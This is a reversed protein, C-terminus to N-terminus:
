TALPVNRRRLLAVLLAILGAVALGAGFALVLAALRIEDRLGRVFGTAAERSLDTIRRDLCDGDDATCGPLLRVLAGDTASAAVNHVTASLSVALPGYGQTGLDGLIGDSLSNHLALATNEALLEVRGSDGMVPRLAADLAGQVAQTAAAHAVQELARINEPSDIRGIAGDVARGAMIEMPGAQGPPPTENVRASLTDLAGGMAGKSVHHACGSALALALVVLGRHSRM